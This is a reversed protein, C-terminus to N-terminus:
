PLDRFLDTSLAQHALQLGTLAQRRDSLEGPFQHDVHVRDNAHVFPQSGLPQNLHPVALSGKHQWRRRRGVDGRFQLLVTFLERAFELPDHPTPQQHSQSQRLQAPHQPLGHGLGFLLNGLLM